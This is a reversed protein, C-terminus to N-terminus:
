HDSVGAWGELAEVERDFGAGEEAGESLAWVDRRAVNWLEDMSEAQLADSILECWRRLRAEVVELNPEDKEHLERRLTELDDRLHLLLRRLHAIMDTKDEDDM